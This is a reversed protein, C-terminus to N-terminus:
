NVGYTIIWSCAVGIYIPSKLESLSQALRLAFSGGRHHRTHPPLLICRRTQPLRVQPAPLMERLREVELVLHRLGCFQQLFKITGTLSSRYM